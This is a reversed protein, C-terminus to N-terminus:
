FSCMMLVCAGKLCIATNSLQGFIPAHFGMEEKNAEGAQQYFWASVISGLRTNNWEAARFNITKIHDRQVSYKITKTSM